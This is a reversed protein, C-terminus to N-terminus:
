SFVYVGAAKKVVGAHLALKTTSLSTQKIVEVHRKM